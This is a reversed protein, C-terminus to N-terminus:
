APETVAVGPAIPSGLNPTGDSNWNVPQVFTRRTGDCAVTSTPSAHFVNWIDEGNPSIFFYNHGPGYDGDAAQFIPEPNKVWNSAVMPDSGVLELMGLKYNNWCYSASYVLWTRGGHYLAVPGENVPNGETEWSYTPESILVADGVTLADTMKAIYLSQLDGNFSSYVLYQGSSLVMITPDISWVDRNPIVIRRVPTPILGWPSDANGELVQIHQNAADSTGAVYYIYWIGNVLHIEPAWVNCCYATATTSFAVTTEGTKLGEVTTARTITVDTWETTTLYYYGDFYTMWPDSGNEDRIPNTFTAGLALLASTALVYLGLIASSTRM